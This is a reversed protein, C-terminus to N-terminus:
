QSTQSRIPCGHVKQRHFHFQDKTEFEENCCHFYIQGNRVVYGIPPANPLNNITSSFTMLGHYNRMHAAITSVQSPFINFSKSQEYNLPEVSNSLEEHLVQNDTEEKQIVGKIPLRVETWKNTHVQDTHKTRSRENAFCLDCAECVLMKQVYDSGYRQDLRERLENNENHYQEHQQLANEVSLDILVGCIECVQYIPEKVPEPPEKPSWFQQIREILANLKGVDNPHVEKGHSELGNATLFIRNECIPCPFCEMELASFPIDDPVFTQEFKLKSTEQSSRKASVLDGDEDFVLGSILEKEIDNLVEDEFRGSQEEKSQEVGEFKMKIIRPKPPM